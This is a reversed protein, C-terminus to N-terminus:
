FLLITTNLFQLGTRDKCYHSIAKAIPNSCDQVLGAVHNEVFNSSTFGMFKVM